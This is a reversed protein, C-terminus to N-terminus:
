THAGSISLRVLGALVESTGGKALGVVGNKM